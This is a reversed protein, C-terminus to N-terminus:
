LGWFANYGDRIARADALANHPTASPPVTLGPVQQCDNIFMPWGEPWDEFGGMLWSLVVYDFDAYDGWFEPEDRVFAIVRERIDSAAYRKWDEIVPLVNNKYFQNKTFMDANSHVLYLERGDDAVIGISVPFLIGMMGKPEWLYETDIFYRM